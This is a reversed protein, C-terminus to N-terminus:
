KVGHAVSHKKLAPLDQKWRWLMKFVWSEKWQEVSSCAFWVLLKQRKKKRSERDSPKKLFFDDKTPNFYFKEEQLILKECSFEGAKTNPLAPEEWREREGLLSEPSACCYTLVCISYHGRRAVWTPSIWDSGCMLCRGLSSFVFKSFVTCFNWGLRRLLGTSIGM